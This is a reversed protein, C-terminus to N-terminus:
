PNYVGNDLASFYVTDVINNDDYNVLMDASYTGNGTDNSTLSSFVALNPYLSPLVGPTLVYQGQADDWEWLDLSTVRLSLSHGTIPLSTTNDIVAPKFTVTSKTGYDFYNNYLWDSGPVNPLLSIDDWDQKVTASSSGAVLTTSKIYDSSTYSGLVNGFNDTTGYGAITANLSHGAGGGISVTMPVDVYVGSAVTNAQTKMTVQVDAQNGGGSGAAITASSGFSNVLGSRQVQVTPNLTVISGGGGYCFLTVGDVDTMDVLITNSYVIKIFYVHKPDFTYSIPYLSNNLDPLAQNSQYGSHVKVGDIFLDAGDDSLLAVQATADTAQFYGSFTVNEVANSKYRPQTTTQGQALAYVAPWDSGPTNLFAVSLSQYQVPLSPDAQVSSSMALHVMALITWFAPLTMTLKSTIM